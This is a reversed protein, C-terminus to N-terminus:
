VASRSAKASAGRRPDKRRTAAGDVGDFFMTAMTTIHRKLARESKPLHGDVLLTALGHVLAWAGVALARASLDDRIVGKERGAEFARELLRFTAGGRPAGDVVLTSSELLLRFHQPHDIAFRIYAEGLRSVQRRPDDGAQALAAKASTLLLEAGEDRIAALLDAKSTFHRYPAGHTVEAARALERLTFDFSGRENFLALATDLLARRLNGHHYAREAM